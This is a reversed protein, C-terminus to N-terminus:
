AGTWSADQCNTPTTENHKHCQTAELVWECYLGKTGPTPPLHRGKLGRAQLGSDRGYEKVIEHIGSTATRGGSRHQDTM